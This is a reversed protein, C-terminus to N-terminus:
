SQIIFKIGKDITTVNYNLKPNPIMQRYRYYKDTVHVKKGKYTLKYNHKRIWSNAENLSFKNKPILISQVHSM